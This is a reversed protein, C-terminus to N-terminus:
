ALIVDCDAIVAARADGTLVRAGGLGRRLGTNLGLGGVVNERAALVDCHREVEIHNRRDKCGRVAVLRSEVAVIAPQGDVLASLRMRDPRARAIGIGIRGRVAEDVVLVHERERGINGVPCGSGANPLDTMVSGPITPAAGRVTTGGRTPM